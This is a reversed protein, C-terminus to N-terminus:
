VCVGCVCVVCVCVCVCMCVGCVCVVRVVRVCACVCVCVCVEGRGVYKEKELERRSEWLGFEELRGRGDSMGFVVPGHQSHGLTHKFSGNSLSTLQKVCTHLYEVYMIYAHMCAYMRVTHNM